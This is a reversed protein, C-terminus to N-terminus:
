VEEVKDVFFFFFSLQDRVCSVHCMVCSVQFIVYPPPQVNEEFTLKRARVTVNPRNFIHVLNYPYGLFVKNRFKFIYFFFHM